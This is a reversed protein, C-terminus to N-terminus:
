GPAARAVRIQLHIVGTSQEFLTEPPPARLQATAMSAARFFFHVRLFANRWTV